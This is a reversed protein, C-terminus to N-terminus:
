TKKACRSRCFICSVVRSECFNLNESMSVDHFWNKGISIDIKYSCQPIESDLASAQINLIQSVVGVRASNVVAKSIFLDQARLHENVPDSSEVPNNRSMNSKFWVRRDHHSHEVILPKNSIKLVIGIRSKVRTERIMQLISFSRHTMLKTEQVMIINLLEDSFMDCDIVDQRPLKIQDKLTQSM